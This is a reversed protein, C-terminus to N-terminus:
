HREGWKRAIELLHIVEEDEVQSFDDYFQGIAFFPEYVVPCVVRNVLKSIELVTDPPAVPTAVVIESAGRKRASTIAAKMTAGTALGDDVIIVTKSSLKIPEMGARYKLTRRKIEALESNVVRNVYEVSVGLMNVLNDDLILTGDEAVAGIALEPNGPAGLKRPVVIDIPAELAKAVEYGVVVGGRPIALVIVEKGRYEQLGAALRQGAEKRNRFREM